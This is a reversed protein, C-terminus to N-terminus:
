VTHQFAFVHSQCCLDVNDLSHDEWHDCITTLAPSYLLGFFHHRQVTATSFVRSVGKSLLSILCDITFSILGSYENSPSISFSWYKPWRIHVSFESSFDRIIPFISPLLLPWWLILHSFPMVSGVPLLKPLSQSITFSLSVQRAATWPTSFLRVHSPLQVVVIIILSSDTITLIRPLVGNLFCAESLGKDLGGFSLFILPLFPPCPAKPVSVQSHHCECIRTGLWLVIARYAGVNICTKKFCVRNHDDYIM